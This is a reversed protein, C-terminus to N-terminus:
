KISFNLGKHEGLGYYHKFNYILPEWELPNIKNDEMVLHDEAHVQVFELEVLVYADRDNVNKVKAEAQIPCEAIRPPRVKESPLQTFGVISFKDDTYTYKGMKQPPVPNQATYPAIAEVKEWMAATPLNFVVEPVEMVNHYAKNLKVLAIVANAGLTFTSSIPTVDANGNKDTTTLLVVPFGYYFMTPLFSKM